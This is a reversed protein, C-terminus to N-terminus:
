GRGGSIRDEERESHARYLTRLADGLSFEPFTCILNIEPNKEPSFWGNVFLFEGGLSIKGNQIFIRSDDKKGTANFGLINVKAELPPLFSKKQRVHLVNGSVSFTM